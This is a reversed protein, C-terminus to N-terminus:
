KGTAKNIAVLIRDLAHSRDNPNSSVAAELMKECAELLDPCAAILRANETFGNLGTFVKAIIPYDDASIAISQGDDYPTPDIKWPGKTYKM